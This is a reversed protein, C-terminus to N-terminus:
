CSFIILSSLIPNEYAEEAEKVALSPESSMKLLLAGIM